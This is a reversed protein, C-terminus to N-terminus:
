AACRRAASAPPAWPASFRHRAGGPRPRGVARRDDCQQRRARPALPRLAAAVGRGSRAAWRADLRHGLGRAVRPDDVLAEGVDRGGSCAAARLGTRRTASASCRRARVPGARRAGHAADERSPKWVVPTAASWPSRRTGRGSRSRSTSPPSSASWARASAM